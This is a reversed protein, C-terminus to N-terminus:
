VQIWSNGDHKQYTKTDPDFRFVTILEDNIAKIMGDDLENVVHSGGWEDIWLIMVTEM